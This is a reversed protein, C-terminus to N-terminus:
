DSNSQILKEAISVNERSLMKLEEVNEIMRETHSPDSRLTKTMQILEDRTVTEIDVVFESLELRNMLDTSKPLYAISITPTGMAMSFITSHMRTGVFLDVAGTLAKLERPHIDSSLVTAQTDATCQDLIKRAEKADSRKHNFFYIDVDQSYLHDVYAAMEKRYRKQMATPKSSSPYKWRRVTIGVSSNSTEMRSVVESEPQRPTFSFAADATVEIPPESVSIEALYEESILDRVTIYDVNDLVSSTIEGYCKKNFPGISQAFMMVPTDLKNAIRLTYLHRLFAPGFTDHLFGGGCSIILDSENMREILENEKSRLLWRNELPNNNGANAITFPLKQIGEVITLPSFNVIPFTLSYKWLPPFVDSEYVTQDLEPSWSEIAFSVEGLEDELM